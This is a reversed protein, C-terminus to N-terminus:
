LKMFFKNFELRYGKLIAYKRQSFEIKRERMRRASMNSGYAFHKIVDEKMLSEGERCSEKEREYAM